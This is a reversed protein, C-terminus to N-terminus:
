ISITNDFFPELHAYKINRIYLLDYKSNTNQHQSNVFTIKYDFFSTHFTQYVIDITYWFANDNLVFM